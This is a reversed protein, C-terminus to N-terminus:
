KTSPMPTGYLSQMFREKRISIVGGGCSDLSLWIRHAKGKIQNYRVFGWRRSDESNDRNDGMVFVTDKPVTIEDKESLTGGMNVNTLVPHDLGDLSERYLTQVRKTCNDDIFDYQGLKERPQLVGNLVIQNDRVSIRDGPLGVVRKIYNTSEERPYRFVIIDGRSPDGLDIMEWNEFPSNAATGGFPWALFMWWDKMPIQIGYSFKTVVVHDGILLTPVMSGSPIRFPEFVFTRILLVALLAPGWTRVQELIWAGFSQQAAPKPPAVTQIDEAM